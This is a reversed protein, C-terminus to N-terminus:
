KVHVAGEVRCCNIKGSLWEDIRLPDAISGIDVKRGAYNRDTSCSRWKTKFQCYSTLDNSFLQHYTHLRVPGIINKSIFILKRWKRVDVFIYHPIFMQRIKRCSLLNIIM